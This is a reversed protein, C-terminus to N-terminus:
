ARAKGGSLFTEAKEKIESYLKKRLELVRETANDLDTM